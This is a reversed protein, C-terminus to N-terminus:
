KCSHRNEMHRQMSSKHKTQCPCYPCQFQPEKGCEVKLHRLMNTRYRYVKRCLPCPFVGPFKYVNIQKTHPQHSQQSPSSLVQVNDTSVALLRDEPHHKNFSVSNQAGSHHLTVFDKAYLQSGCRSAVSSSLQFTDPGLNTANEFERYYIWSDSIVAICVYSAETLIIEM